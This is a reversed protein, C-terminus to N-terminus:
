LADILMPMSVNQTRPEYLIQAFYSVGDKLLEQFVKKKIKREWM